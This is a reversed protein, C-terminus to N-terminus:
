LRCQSDALAQVRQALQALSKQADGGLAPAPKGDALAAKAKGSWESAAADIEALTAALVRHIQESQLRLVALRETAETGMSPSSSRLLAAESAAYAQHMSSLQGICAAVAQDQAHYANRLPALQAAVTAALPKAADTAKGAQKAAAFDSEAQELLRAVIADAPDPRGAKVLLAAAAPTSVAAQGAGATIPVGVNSFRANAMLPNADILKIKETLQALEEPRNASVIERTIKAKLIMRNAAEIGPDSLLRIAEAAEELGAIISCQSDYYVADKIAAQVTYAHIDVTRALRMRELVAKRREDIGKTIVPVALNYFYSQSIEARAGSFGGALAALNKAGREGFLPGLIGSITAGTGLWFNADSQVELLLRRYIGCRQDSSLVVRDQIRNRRNAKEMDSELPNRTFAEFAYEYKEDISLKDWSRGSGNRELLQKGFYGPDLMQLLNLPEIKARDLVPHPGTYDIDQVTRPSSGDEGNSQLKRPTFIGTGSTGCGALLLTAILVGAFLRRTHM